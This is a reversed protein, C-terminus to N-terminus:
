SFLRSSKTVHVFAQTIKIGNISEHLYATLNSHKNSHVQWARRQKKRILLTTIVLFPVGALAIFSLRPSISFMFYVIVGLSLIELVATVLGSSFMDAITNVYNVVRVLIKGHSRTDFYSFPLHQLTKFLDKRMDFIINQGIYNMYKMRLSAALISILTILVFAIGITLLGKVNKNPIQVDLANQILYPMSTAAVMAIVLIIFTLIFEKKYPKIYHAIKKIEKKGLKIKLEEDKQYTNVKAM